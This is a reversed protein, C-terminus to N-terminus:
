VAGYPEFGFLENVSTVPEGFCLLKGDRYTPSTKVETPIVQMTMLLAQYSDVGAMWFRKQFEGFDISYRCKWHGRRDGKPAVYEPPFIEVSGPRLGEADKVEVDRRVIAASM